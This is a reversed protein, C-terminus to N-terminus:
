CACGFVQCTMGKAAKTELKKKKIKKQFAYEIKFLGCVHQVLYKREKV